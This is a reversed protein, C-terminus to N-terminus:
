CLKQVFGSLWSKQNCANKPMVYVTQDYHQNKKLLQGDMTIMRDLTNTQGYFMFQWHTM